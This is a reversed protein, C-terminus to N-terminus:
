ICLIRSRYDFYRNITCCIGFMSFYMRCKPSKQFDFFKLFDLENNQYIYLKWLEYKTVKTFKTYKTFNYDCIYIYIYINVNGFIYIYRYVRVNVSVYRM